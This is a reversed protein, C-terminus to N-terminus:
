GWTIGGTSEYTISNHHRNDLNMELEQTRNRKVHWDNDQGLSAFGGNAFMMAIADQSTRAMEVAEEMTPGQTDIAAISEARVHSYALGDGFPSPCTPNQLGIARFIISEGVSVGCGEGAVAVIGRHMVTGTSGSIFIGNKDMVDEPILMALCTGDICWPASGDRPIVCTVEEPWAYSTEDVGCRWGLWGLWVTDGILPLRGQGRLRSTLRGNRADLVHEGDKSYVSFGNFPIGTVIGSLPRDDNRDNRHNPDIHQPKFMGDDEPQALELQWAPGSAPSEVCQIADIGVSWISGDVQTIRSNDFIIAQGERGHQFGGRNVLRGIRPPRKSEETWQSEPEWEKADVIVRGTTPRYRGQMM